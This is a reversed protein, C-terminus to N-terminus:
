RAVCDKQFGHSLERLDRLARQIKHRWEEDHDDTRTTHERRETSM